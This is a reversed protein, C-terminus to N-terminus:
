WLIISSDGYMSAKVLSFSTDFKIELDEFHTRKRVQCREIKSESGVYRREGGYGREMPDDEEWWWWWWGRERLFIHSRRQGLVGGGGGHIDLFISTGVISEQRVGRDLAKAPIIDSDGHFVPMGLLPLVNKRLDIADDFSTLGSLGADHLNYQYTM